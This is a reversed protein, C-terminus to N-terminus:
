NGSGLLANMESKTMPNSEVASSFQEAIRIEFHTGKGLLGVESKLGFKQRHREPITIRAQSDMEVNQGYYGTVEQFKEKDEFTGPGNLIKAEFLEWEKMPYLKVVDGYLSTIYFRADYKLEDIEHKFDAPIKMRGKEDLRTSYHGRFM